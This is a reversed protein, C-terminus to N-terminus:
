IEVEVSELVIRQADADQLDDSVMVALRAGEALTADSARIFHETFHEASLHSLAGLWVSVGTVRPAGEAKAIDAIQRMLNAMLTAEHM